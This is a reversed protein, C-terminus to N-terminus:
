ILKRFIEDENVVDEDIDTFTIVSVWFDPSYCKTFFLKAFKAHDLFRWRLRLSVFRGCTNINTRFKQLKFLSNNVKKFSKEVLLSLYPQNYYDCYKLQADLKLGYPDFFYLENGTEHLCTWHGHFKSDVQYLIIVGKNKGLLDDVSKYKSIDEYLVIEYKNKTLSKMNFGTLDEKVVNKIVTEISM